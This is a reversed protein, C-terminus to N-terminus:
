GVNIEAVTELGRLDGPVGFHQQDTMRCTLLNVWVSLRTKKDCWHITSISPKTCSQLLEMALASSISCDQVLGAIDDTMVQLCIYIIM